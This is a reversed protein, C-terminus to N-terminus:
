FPLWLGWALEVGGPANRGRGVWAAGLELHLRDVVRVAVWPGLAASGRGLAEHGLPARDITVVTDFRLALLFRRGLARVGVKGGGVVADTVDDTRLRYGVALDLFGAFPLRGGLLAVATVDVQGDGLAPGGDPARGRVTPAGQYLPLKVDLRAALAVPGEDTLRLQGGVTLDGAGARQVLGGADVVSVLHWPVQASLTLRPAVGLEVDTLMTQVRLPDADTRLGDDDYAGTGVFTSSVLRVQGQGPDRGLATATAPSAALLAMLLSPALTRTVPGNDRM